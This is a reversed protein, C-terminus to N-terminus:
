INSEKAKIKLLLQPQLITCVSFKVMTLTILFKEDAHDTARMINVNTISAIAHVLLQRAVGSGLM